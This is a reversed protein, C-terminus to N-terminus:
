PGTNKIIKLSLISRQTKYRNFKNTKNGLNKFDESIQNIKNVVIITLQFLTSLDNKIDRNPPNHTIKKLVDLKNNTKM